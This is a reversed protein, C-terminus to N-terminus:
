GRDGRVAQEQLAAAVQEDNLVPLPAAGVVHMVQQPFPIEIGHRALVEKVNRNLESWRVTYDAAPVWARVKMDVSSQNLATIVVEPEPAALVDPLARATELLLARAQELDADYAVGVLVEVRRTANRSYNVVHSSWIQSNPMAVYLGDLQRLETNFLGVSIVSGTVGGVQVVEGVRLPRLFVLMIGAAINSLTNQLALGIALGAAGLVALISTPEVGFKPLAMVVVLVLVGYRVVASLFLAVTEDLHIREMMLAKARRSMWGSIYWGILIIIIAAIVGLGLDIARDVWPYAMLRQYAQEM